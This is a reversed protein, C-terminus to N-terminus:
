ATRDGNGNPLGNACRNSCQPRRQRLETGGRLRLKAISVRKSSSVCAAQRAARGRRWGCVYINLVVATM